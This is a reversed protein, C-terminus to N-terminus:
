ARPSGLKAPDVASRVPQRPRQPLVSPVAPEPAPSQEEDPEGGAEMEDEPEPESLEGSPPTFDIPQGQRELDAVLPTVEPETAADAEEASGEIEAAAQPAEPAAAREAGPEPGEPVLTLQFSRQLYETLVARFHPDHREVPRKTITHRASGPAPRVTEHLKDLQNTRAVVDGLFAQRDAVASVVTLQGGPGYSLQGIIPADAQGPNGFHVTYTTM